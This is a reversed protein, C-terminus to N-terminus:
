FPIESEQDDDEVAADDDDDDVKKKTTKTSAKTETKKAASAKAAAKEKAVDSRSRVVPKEEEEEEADGYKHGCHPCETESLKMPKKCEDCKVEEDDGSDDADSDDADDDDDDADDDDLDSSAAAADEAEDEEEWKKIQDDSPFIEDWPVSKLLCNKEFIAQMSKQNFPTKLETLDPAEGRILKLVRSSPKVKLLATADYKKAFEEKEKYEWQICYPEKQINLENSKWIKQIVEKVKEGLAQTETAIQVGKGVDDNDVICLVYECKVNSNQKWAEDGRIKAKAMAKKVDAPLDKQGFFNCFGGAYMTVNESEKAESEFDFLKTCPDLGKSKGKKKEAWVKKEDDWTHTDLWALIEMWLWDSFKCMGCRKPPNDREGTIKDRWPNSLIDETEHCTFKKSFVHKVEENTQKDKLVVYMPFPHRWLAMPLRKTHLWTDIHGPKSKWGKLFNGGGGRPKHGLFGDMTDFEQAGRAM